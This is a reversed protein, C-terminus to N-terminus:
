CITINVHPLPSLIQAKSQDITLISSHSQYIHKAMHQLIPMFHLPFDPVIELIMTVHDLRDLLYTPLM